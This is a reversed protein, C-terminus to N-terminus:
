GVVGEAKSSPGYGTGHHLRHVGVPPKTPQFALLRHTLTNGVQLPRPSPLLAGYSLAQADECGKALRDSPVWPSIRWPRDFGYPHKAIRRTAPLSDPEDHDPQHRM